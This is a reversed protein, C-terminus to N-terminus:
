TVTEAEPIFPTGRFRGRNNFVTTCTELRNDCGPWAKFDDGPAVPFPWAELVTLNGVLNSAITRRVGANAGSTFLIDGLAWEDVALGVVDHTFTTGLDDLVSTAQGTVEFDDRDLGCVTDFVSALCPAQYVNLPIMVNLLEVDNRAEVRKEHRGGWTAGLGGSFRHLAGQWPAGPGASFARDLRLRANDFGGGAIYQILPTGNVTFGPPASFTVECTDVELTSNTRTRSRKMIPGLSWLTAGLRVPEDGGVWRFVTGGTLTITYLDIKRIQTQGPGNLLASLAGPTVEWIPTKM